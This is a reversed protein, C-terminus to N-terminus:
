LGVKDTHHRQRVARVQLEVPRVDLCSPTTTVAAATSVDRQLSSTDYHAWFSVTCVDLKDHQVDLGHARATATARM